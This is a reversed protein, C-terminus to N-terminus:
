FRWQEAGCPVSLQPLGPAYDALAAALRARQAILRAAPLHKAAAIAEHHAADWANAGHYSYIYCWGVGRLRAVVFGEDHSARLLDWTFATDEGRRLEPYRPMRARKCLLTGQVFNMPYPESDWDDWYLAGTQRFWHLQDVLFCCDARERQAAQWQLQLREPHYRDDDDWQCIWEGHARDTAINRLAGLSLGPEAREVRIQARECQMAPSDALRTLREHLGADGDHVILLERSVVTQRAFDAMADAVMPERGAQTITICSIM